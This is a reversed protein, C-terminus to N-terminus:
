AEPGTLNNVIREASWQAANTIHRQWASESPSWRFGASKLEKRLEESPKYPFVIQLRNAEINQVIKVGNIEKETTEMSELKELQEIRKRVNSINGNNNSLAYAPFGVRGCFDPELIKAANSESLLGASVILAIKEEKSKNSKVIKNVAKMLEQNKQLAALKERLKKLGNPDDSFITKDKEISRVRSDFYEAKKDAEISAGMARDIKSLDSRHRRESHHGILIPQGMPIFSGIKKAFQYKEASKDRNQEALRKYAELRNDRRETFNHKM